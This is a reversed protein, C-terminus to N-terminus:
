LGRTKLMNLAYDMAETGVLTPMQFFGHTMNSFERHEVHVGEEHLRKAYAKGDDRLVDFGATVIVAQPLGRLDEAHLPSLLPDDLSIGKPVFQERYFKLADEELIYGEAFERHSPLSHTYDLQPYFLVQAAITPGHEKRCLLALAAALNGGSSEGWLVIETFGREDLWHLADEAEKLQTPYQAEPALTYDLAAVVRGSKECLLRALPDYIDIDGRVYGGSHFFLTARKKEGSTPFYLRLRAEELLHNEIKAVELPEGAFLGLRKASERLQPLPTYRVPQAKNKKGEEILQKVNPHMEM